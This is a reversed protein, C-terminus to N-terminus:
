QASYFCLRFRYLRKRAHTRHSIRTDLAVVTALKGWEIVRSAFSVFAVGTLQREHEFAIVATGMNSMSVVEKTILTTKVLGMNSPGRRIPMWEM